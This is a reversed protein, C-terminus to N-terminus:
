SAQTREIFRELLHLVADRQRFLDPLRAQAHPDGNEALKLLQNALAHFEEHIAELAQFEPVQGYRRMGGRYYWQGLRCARSGLVPPAGQPARVFAAVRECWQRHSVMALLLATDEAPLCSTGLNQWPREVMWREMWAPIDEAPMPPAIGYGQGLKCGLKVLLMAHQLTEVGEAIVHRNFAEALHIVSEVIGLDDPDDLMDRVFSGDVKLSEVPLRRFYTLSSYGTGFDDLAFGVGLDLGAQLAASAKELDSIAVTELIELELRRPGIAPHRQPALELRHIFDPSLLHEASVNASVALELGLRKWAEMQELVADIVWEGLQGDLETGALFPLFAAPTLLGEDPHRWPILAEVGIVQGTILNVKPQFYLLFEDHRIGHSVRQLFDRQERAQRDFEPDFLHFRNRGNEKARYMAQDAHRLLTDGDANDHPFLTVGISASLTVVQEDLHLPHSVTALVRELLHSSEEERSLDNLLLVFEDGGLRALTDEARLVEQLNRTLMVLLQDGADHGLRDNVPKFGDLDLYCVALLKGSRRAHAIAHNLRDALLRRNPLGTLPDFHAIRNLEAAHEKPRSIDSFVGVYEQVQGHSDRVAAISLMETYLSGDRRRNCIEGRWQGTQLVSRWMEEYFGPGQVSSGLLRPNQGLVEDRTYGTIQTFAPNVDIINNEADTIIIGEQTNHFVSSARRMAEEVDRRDTIDRAIGLVGALAGQQNLLPTKVTEYIGRHGDTASTLWEENVVSVGAAVAALDRSRLFDATERPFFEYDTKGIITAEPHGMLRECSPNCFLYVGDPDKLWIMDPISNLLSRLRLREEDLSRRVQKSESIDVGLALLYTQDGIHTRKCTLLVPITAGSATHMGAEVTAEGQAFTDALANAIHPRDAAQFLDASRLRPLDIDSLGTLQKLHRNWRLFRDTGDTMYFSGPLANILDESFLKEERVLAHQREAENQARLSHLAQDFLNALTQLATATHSSIRPVHRCVLLLGGEWLPDGAVGLPLLIAASAGDQARIEVWASDAQGCLNHPASAVPCLDDRAPCSCYLKGPALPELRLKAVFQPWDQEFHESVGHRNLVTISQDPLSQFALGGNLDTLSLAFDLAARLLADRGPRAMLAQMFRHQADM